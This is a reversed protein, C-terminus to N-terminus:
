RMAGPAGGGEDPPLSANVRYLFTLLGAVAGYVEVPIEEGLESAALLAVLDPDERVPVGAARAAELIREAVAGTGRAVVRPAEDATADYRLGVARTPRRDRAM